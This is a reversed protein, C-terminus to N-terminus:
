GDQIDGDVFGVVQWKRFLRWIWWRSSRSIWIRAMFVWIVAITGTALASLMDRVFRIGIGGDVQDPSGPENGKVSAGSSPLLKTVGYAKVTPISKIGEHPVLSLCGNIKQDPVRAESGRLELDHVGSNLRDQFSSFCRARDRADFVLVRLVFVPRGVWEYIWRIRLSCAGIWKEDFVSPGLKFNGHQAQGGLESRFMFSYPQTFGLSFSGFDDAIIPSASGSGASGADVDTISSSDGNPTRNFGKSHLSFDGGAFAYKAGHQGSPDRQFPDSYVHERILPVSVM